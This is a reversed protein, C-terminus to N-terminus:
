LSALYDQMRQTQEARTAIEAAANAVMDFWDRRHELAPCRDIWEMARDTMNNVHTFMKGLYAVLEDRVEKDDAREATEAIESMKAVTNDLSRYTSRIMDFLESANM